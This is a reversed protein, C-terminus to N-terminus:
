HSTNGLSNKLARRYSQNIANTRVPYEQSTYIITEYCISFLFIPSLRCFTLPFSESLFFIESLLFNVLENMRIISTRQAKFLSLIM